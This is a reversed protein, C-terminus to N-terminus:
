YNFGFFFDVFTDNFHERNNFVVPADGGLKFRKGIDLRLVLPAGLSMRLSGGYSGWTGQPKSMTHLWSSGMDAFVAGQIGPLQVNGFPFAFSLAHLLPFRWEQNLLWLRSGALSYRPYGRL